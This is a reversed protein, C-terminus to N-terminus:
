SLRVQRPGREFNQGHTRLREDDLVAFVTCGYEEAFGCEADSAMRKARRRQRDFLDFIGGSGSVGKGAAEHSVDGRLSFEAAFHQFASEEVATYHSRKRDLAKAGLTQLREGAFFNVAAKLDEALQGMQFSHEASGASPGRFQGAPM